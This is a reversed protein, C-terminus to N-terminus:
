LERADAGGGCLGALCQQDVLLALRLGRCPAPGCRRGLGGSLLGLLALLKAEGGLLQGKELGEEGSLGRLRCRGVQKGVVDVLLEEVEHSVDHDLKVLRSRGAEDLVVDLVHAFREALLPGRSGRVWRRLWLWRALRQTPM